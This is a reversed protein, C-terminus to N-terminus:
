KLLAGMVSQVFSSSHAIKKAETLSKPLTKLNCNKAIADDFLNEETAAPPELKDKIGEM